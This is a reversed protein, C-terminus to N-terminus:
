NSKKLKKELRAIEKKIKIIEPHGDSYQKRLEKLKNKLTNLRSDDRDIYQPVQQLQAQTSVSRLFKRQENSMGEMELIEAEQEIQEAKAHMDDDGYKAAFNRMSRASTKLVRVADLERGEDSLAIAKEEALANQTIFLEKQVHINASKEIEQANNSFSAIVNGGTRGEKETFANIYNIEATAVNLIEGDKRKPIEVEILAYKEQGGYLQNLTLEITRGKIRGERGIISKPTVGEPCEVVVKVRKAVVDLVDGLETSFIDPLDRSSEVFYTNGDSNRSLRTMLDENYDTGVGITTVAIEEKILAAGLRGLEEPSSPGVNAIGDSLLIIRNIYGGDLNKRIESAGQSVGGFLATNGGPRINRIRSEIWEINAASQAPVITEVNHDYIVVSCKDRPGLRRLAEIAAQKAKEIKQGSMSGSRDLVLALNVKPRKVQNTREYPKEADLTVKIIVNQSRDSPLVNRDLEVRCKVPAVTEKAIVNGSFVSTVAFLTFIATWVRHRIIQEITKM